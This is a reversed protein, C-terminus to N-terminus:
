AAQKLLVLHIVREDLEVVEGVYGEGTLGTIEIKPEGNSPRHQLILNTKFDIGLVRNVQKIAAEPKYDFVNEDGHDVISLATRSQIQRRFASTLDYEVERRLPFTHNDFIPVSITSVSAPTRYGPTYGCGAAAAFVLAAAALLRRGGSVPLVPYTM